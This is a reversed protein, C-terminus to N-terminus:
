DHDVESSLFLGFGIAAALLSALQQGLEAAPVVKLQGIWLAAILMALGFKNIPSM